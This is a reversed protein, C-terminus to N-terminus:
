KQLDDQFNQESRRAIADWGRPSPTGSVALVIRPRPPLDRPDLAAGVVSFGSVAQAEERSVPSPFSLLQLGVKGEAWWSHRLLATAPQSGWSKCCAVDDFRRDM